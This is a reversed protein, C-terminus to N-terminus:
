RGLKCLGNFLCFAPAFEFIDGQGPFALHLSSWRAMDNSNDGVLVRVTDILEDIREEFRSCGWSDDDGLCATLLCNQCERQISNKALAMHYEFANGINKLNLHVDLTPNQSRQKCAQVYPALSAPQDVSPRSDFYLDVCNWLSPTNMILGNWKKCVLLLTRIRRHEPTIFLRFIEVFIEAPCKNVHDLGKTM